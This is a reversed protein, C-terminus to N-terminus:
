HASAKARAKAVIGAITPETAGTTTPFSSPLRRMTRMALLAFLEAEIADGRLGLADADVVEVACRKAIEAMLTPNKRGGGTVLAVRGDLRGM